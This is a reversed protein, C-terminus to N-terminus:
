SVGPPVPEWQRLENDWVTRLRGESEVYWRGDAAGKPHWIVAGGTLASRATALRVLQAMAETPLDDDLMVRAGTDDDALSVSVRIRDVVGAVDPPQHVRGLLRRVARRTRADIADALKTGYAAVIAQVFPVLGMSVLVLTTTSGGTQRRHVEVTAPPLPVDDPFEGDENEVM